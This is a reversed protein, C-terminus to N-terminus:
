VFNDRVHFLYLIASYGWIMRVLTQKVYYLVNLCVCLLENRRITESM